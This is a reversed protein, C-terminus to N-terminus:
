FFADRFYLTYIHGRHSVAAALDNVRLMGLLIQCPCGTQEGALPGM